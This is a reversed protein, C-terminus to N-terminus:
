PIGGLARDDNAHHGARLLQFETTSLCRLSTFQRFLAPEACLFLLDRNAAQVASMWRVDDPAVGLGLQVAMFYSSDSVTFDLTTCCNLLESYLDYHEQAGCMARHMFEPIDLTSISM